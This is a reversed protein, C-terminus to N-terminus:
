RLNWIGSSSLIGRQELEIGAPTRELARDSVSVFQLNPLSLLPSLDTVKTGRLFLYKLNEAAQLPTLDTVMTESLFLFSLQKLGQLPTLDTVGTRVLSLYRLDTLHQLPTIDTVSADSITLRLLGTLGKLPTINTVMTSNLSLGKLNTLSQLPTLDTIATGKLSLSELNTLGQLLRLDDNTFATDVLSLNRLGTMGQLPIFDTVRTRDLSLNTLGTLKRLPTLDTVLTDNLSILKLDALDQLPTLNTVKAGDLLLGQLRTLGQVPTLDTVATGELNIVIGIAQADTSSLTSIAASAEKFTANNIDAAHVERHGPFDFTTLGEQASILVGLRGLTQRAALETLQPTVYARQYVIGGALGAGLLLIAAASALRNRRMRRMPETATVWTSDFLRAYIRNRVVLRGDTNRKVLGSLKLETHTLTAQDKAFGGSLIREYVQLPAASGTFREAVFRLIQEIHPDQGLRDLKSYVHEVIHDVANPSTAKENSLDKCLRATLYPHGNTWYLVRALLIQAIDPDQNIVGRFPSLDDRTEDLDGLWLTQGINYPTTRRDKILENPTAVGVLCFVLRQYAPVLARENYMSRLSTFLDDTWPFKLTSDIEDLFIAVHQM